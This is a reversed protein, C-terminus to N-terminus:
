YYREQAVEMAFRVMEPFLQNIHEEEQSIHEEEQTTLRSNELDSTVSVRTTNHKTRTM